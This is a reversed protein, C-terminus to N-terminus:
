EGTNASRRPRAAAPDFLERLSRQVLRVAEPAEVAMVQDLVWRRDREPLAPELRRGLYRLFAFDPHFGAGDGALSPDAGFEAYHDTVENVLDIFSDGNSPAGPPAAGLLDDENDQLIRALHHVLAGTFAVREGPRQRAHAIRDALAVLFVLVERLFQFYPRGTEVDFGARRMRELMHRAVRWLIFAAASAQQQASKAAGGRFWHSKLRPAPPPTVHVAM